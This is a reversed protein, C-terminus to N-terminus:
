LSRLPKESQWSSDVAPAIWRRGSRGALKRLGVKWIVIAASGTRDSLGRGRESRARDAAIARMHETTNLRKEPNGGKTKLGKCNM